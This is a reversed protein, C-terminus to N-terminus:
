RTIHYRDWNYEIYKRMTIYYKWEMITYLKMELYGLVLTAYTPAFITGMATGM